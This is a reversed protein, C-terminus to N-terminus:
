ELAGWVEIEYVRGRDLPAARAPFEVRVSDVPPCDVLIKPRAVQNGRQRVRAVERGNQLCVVDFDRSTYLPTEFAGALTLTVWRVQARGALLVELSSDGALSAWKEEPTPHEEEDIAFLPHHHRFGDYGSARVRGGAYLSALNAVFGRRPLRVGAIPPTVADAKRAAFWAVSAALVALYVAACLKM